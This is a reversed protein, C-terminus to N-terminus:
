SEKFGINIPGLSKNMIDVLKTFHSAVASTSSCFPFFVLMKTFAQKIPHGKVNAM